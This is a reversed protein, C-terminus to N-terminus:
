AFYYPFLTKKKRLSYLKYKGLHPSLFTFNESSPKELIYNMISAVKTLFIIPLCTKDSFLIIFGVKKICWVVPLLYSFHFNHVYLQLNNRMLNSSLISSSRLFHCCFLFFVLPKLATTVKVKVIWKKYIM